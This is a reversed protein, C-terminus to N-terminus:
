KLKQQIQELSFKQLLTHFISASAKNTSLLVQIKLLPM